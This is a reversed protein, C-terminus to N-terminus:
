FLCHYTFDIDCSLCTGSAIYGRYLCSSPPDVGCPANATGSTSIAGTCGTLDFWESDEDCGNTIHTRCCAQISVTASGANAHVQFGISKAQQGDLTNTTAGQAAQNLGLSNKSSTRCQLAAAYLPSLSACLIAGAIGLTLGGGFRPRRM